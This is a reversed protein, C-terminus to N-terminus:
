KNETKKRDTEVKRHRWRERGKMERKIDREELGSLLCQVMKSPSLCRQIGSGLLSKFYHNCPHIVLLPVYNKISFVKMRERKLGM